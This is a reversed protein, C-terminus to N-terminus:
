HPQALANRVANLTAPRAPRLAIWSLAPARPGSRPAGTEPADPLTRPAAARLFVRASLVTREAAYALLERTSQAWALGPFASRRLDSYSVEWLSKERSSRRLPWRCEAAAAALVREPVAQYYRSLLKLPPLAWWFGCEAASQTLVEDWDTQSMRASLLALDHLQVLRLTRSLMAGAAHLLLHIMLPAHSRYPNLGPHPDQPLILAAVDVARRALIERIRVHLDIKIGNDSHEGFPAPLPAEASEFVRHKWTVATQHWRLTEMIAALREADDPSALLDLDAMPREGVEYLRMEHLAAGKLAVFAVGADRAKHDLIGLLEKVRLYRRETHTQQEDLFGAWGPPGRWRLRRSLLSAVGHLVTVARAIRWEPPSWDPVHVTPHALEHALKETTRRLGVQIARLPPLAHQAHEASTVAVEPDAEVRRCASFDVIAPSYGAPGRLNL